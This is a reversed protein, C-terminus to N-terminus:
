SHPDSSHHFSQTEIKATEPWLARVWIATRRVCRLASNSWKMYHRSFPTQWIWCHFTKPLWLFARLTLLRWTREGAAEEGLNEAKRVSCVPCKDQFKEKRLLSESMVQPCQYTGDTSTGLVHIVVFLSALSSFLTYGDQVLPVICPPLTYRAVRPSMLVSVWKFPPQRSGKGVGTTNTIKAM